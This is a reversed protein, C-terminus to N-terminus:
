KKTAEPAPIAILVCHQSRPLDKECAAIKKLAVRYAETANMTLLSIIVMGFLVGLSTFFATRGDVIKYEEYMSELSM